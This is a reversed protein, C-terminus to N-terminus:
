CHFSEKAIIYGDEAYYSLQARELVAQVGSTM